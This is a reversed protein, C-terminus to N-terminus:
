GRGVQGVSYSVSATLKSTKCSLLNGRGRISGRDTSRGARLTTATGVSSDSSLRLSEPTVLHEVRLSGQVEWMGPLV